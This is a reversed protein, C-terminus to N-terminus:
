DSPGATTRLGTAARLARLARLQLVGAVEMPLHMLRATEALPREEVFRTLLLERYEAPLGDVVARLSPVASAPHEQSTQRM